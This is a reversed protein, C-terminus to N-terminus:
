EDRTRSRLCSIRNLFSNAANRARQRRSPRTSRVVLPSNSEIVAITQVRETNVQSESTVSTNSRPAPSTAPPTEEVESVESTLVTDDTVFDTSIEENPIIPPLLDPITNSASAM